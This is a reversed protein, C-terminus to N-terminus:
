SALFPHRTQLDWVCCLLLGGPRASCARWAARAKSDGSESPSVGVAVGIKLEFDAHHGTFQSLGVQVTHTPIQETGAQYDTLLSVAASAHNYYHCNDLQAQLAQEVLAELRREPVMLAPPM